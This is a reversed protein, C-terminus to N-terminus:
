RAVVAKDGQLVRHPHCEFFQQLPDCNSFLDANNAKTQYVINGSHFANGQSNIQPCSTGPNPPCLVSIGFHHYGRGKWCFRKEAGVADLERQEAGKVPM